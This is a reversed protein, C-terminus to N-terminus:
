RSAGQRSQSTNCSTKSTSKDKGQSSSIQPGKKSTQAQGTSSQHTPDPASVPPQEATIGATHSQGDPAPSQDLATPLADDAMTKDVSVLATEIDPAIGPGAAPAVIAEAAELAQRFTDLLQPQATPKAFHAQVKAFLSQTKTYWRQAIDVGIVIAMVVCALMVISTRVAQNVQDRVHVLRSKYQAYFALADESQLEAKAVRIVAKIPNYSTGMEELSQRDLEMLGQHATALSYKGAKILLPLLLPLIEQKFACFYAKAKISAIKSFDQMTAPITLFPTAFM